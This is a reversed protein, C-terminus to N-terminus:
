QILLQLIKSASKKWDFNLLQKKEEEIIPERPITIAKELGQEMDESDRPNVYIAAVGGIEPMSSINSTIVITENAFAEIIPIGFGESFSPFFFCVSHKYLSNKEEESVYGLVHIQQLKKENIYKFASSKEFSKLGFLVLDYDPHKRSFLEFAKVVGITNKREELSAVALIFKNNISYQKKLQIWQEQSLYTPTGYGNYIVNLKSSVQPYYTKIEKKETESITIIEKAKLMARPVIKRRYIKGIKKYLSKPSFPSGKMYILDHVTIITHCAIRLPATNYPCWLVDISYKRALHPLVLQEWVFYNAKRGYVFIIGNKELIEQIQPNLKKPLFLYMLITDSNIKWHRLVNLVVVGMGTINGCLLNGDIGIKKM